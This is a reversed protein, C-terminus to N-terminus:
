RNKYKYIVIIAIFFPVGCRFDSFFWFLLAAIFNSPAGVLRRCALGGGGGGGGRLCGAPASSQVVRSVYFDFDFSLCFM